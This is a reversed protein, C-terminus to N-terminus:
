WQILEAIKNLFELSQQCGQPTPKKILDNIIKSNKDQQEKIQKNLNEMETSANKAFKKAKEIESNQKDLEDSLTKVNSQLTINDKKVKDLSSELSKVEMNKFFIITCFVLVTIIYLILKWHELLFSVVPNTVAVPLTIKETLKNENEPNTM